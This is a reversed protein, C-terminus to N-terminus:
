IIEDDNIQSINRITKKLNFNTFIDESLSHIILKKDDIKIASLGFTMNISLILLKKSIKIKEDIEIQYVLPSLNNKFNLIQWLFRIMQYFSVCLISLFHSYFNLNLFILETSKRVLKKKYVYFSLLLCLILGFSLSLFSLKTFSFLM